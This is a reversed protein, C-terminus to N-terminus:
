FKLYTSVTNILGMVISMMAWVGFLMLVIWSWMAFKEFM